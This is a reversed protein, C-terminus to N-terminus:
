EEEVPRIHIEDKGLHLAMLLGAVIGRNECWTKPLCLVLCDKLKRVRRLEVPKIKGAGRANKKRITKPM